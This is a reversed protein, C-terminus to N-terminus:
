SSGWLYASFVNGAVVVAGTTFVLRVQDGIFAPTGANGTVIADDWSVLRRQLESGAQMASFNLATGTNLQTMGADLLNQVAGMSTPPVDTASLRYQLNGNVAYAGSAALNTRTLICTFSRCGFVSIFSSALVVFGNADAAFNVGSIGLAVPDWFRTIGGGLSPTVAGGAATTQVTFIPLADQQNIPVAGLQTIPM